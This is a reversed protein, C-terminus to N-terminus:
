SVKKGARVKAWRAKQAAAIRKRGAASIKRRTKKGSKGVVEDISVTSGGGLLEIVKEMRAIDQRIEAIISARSLTQAGTATAVSCSLVPATSIEVQRINSLSTLLAAEREGAQRLAITLGRLVSLV